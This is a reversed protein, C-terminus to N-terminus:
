VTMPTRAASKRCGSGAVEVHWPRDRLQAGLAPHAVIEADDGAELRADGDRLRLGLQAGDRARMLARVGLSAPQSTVTTPIFCASKSYMRGASSNSKAGHSEQQQQCAHVHRTQQQRADRGPALLHGNARRQARPAPPRM